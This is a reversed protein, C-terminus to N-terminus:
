FFRVIKCNLVVQNKHGLWLRVTCFEREPQKVIEFDAKSQIDFDKPIELWQRISYVDFAYKTGVLRLKVEFLEDESERETWVDLNRM